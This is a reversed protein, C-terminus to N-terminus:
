DNFVYDFVAAGVDPSSTEEWMNAAERAKKVAQLLAEVRAAVAQKRPRPMAGSYKVQSWFGALVDETILQTQAPHETTADYLVIPRQVKKTRHTKTADTKYLGSNVDLTWDEAPDLVPLEGVFTRMDTLQKELFLLFSVPAGAVVTKGDVVVDAVAVQNTWDKRAEVQFLESLADTMARLQSDVEFQVQKREPPLDEGDDDRKEYTKGFGNFLDAKQNAKHLESVVAYSRAKVGKEVAIIQNLRGAM